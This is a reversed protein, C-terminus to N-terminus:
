HYRAAAERFKRELEDLAETVRDRQQRWADLSSARLATLRESARNRARRLEAIVAEAQERGDRAM